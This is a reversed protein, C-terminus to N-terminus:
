HAHFRRHVDGPCGALGLQRGSLTDAEFRGECAEQIFTQQGIQRGFGCALPADWRVGARVGGVPEPCAKSM